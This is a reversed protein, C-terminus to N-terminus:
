GALASVLWGDIEGLPVRTQEGGALPRVAVM